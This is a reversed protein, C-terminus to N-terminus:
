MLGYFFLPVEKRAFNNEVWVQTAFTDDSVQLTVNATDSVVLIIDVEISTQVGMAPVNKVTAPYDGIAVLVGDADYLGVERITFPGEENPIVAKCVLWNANDPDVTASQLGDRYVENTLATATELPTIASGNGDGFAMEAMIVPDGGDAAAAAFLAQGALTVIMGM